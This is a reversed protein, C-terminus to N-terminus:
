NSVKRIERCVEFGDKKPMVLDLLLLDYQAQAVKASVEAGDTVYDVEFRDKPMMNEYVRVLFIDDEVLLIKKTASM